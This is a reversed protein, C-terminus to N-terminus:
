RDGGNVKEHLRGVVDELMEVRGRLYAVESVLTQFQNEEVYRILEDDPVPFAGM